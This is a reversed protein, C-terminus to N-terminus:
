KPLFELDNLVNEFPALRKRIKKDIRRESERPTETITLSIKKSRHNSSPTKIKPNLISELNWIRFDLNRFFVSLYHLIRIRVISM